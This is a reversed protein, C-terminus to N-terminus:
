KRSGIRGADSRVPAQVPSLTEAAGRDPDFPTLSEVAATEEAFTDLVLQQLRGVSLRLKWERRLRGSNAPHYHYEAVEAPFRAARTLRGAAAILERDAAFYDARLLVLLWRLLRAQPHLCRQLVLREFGDLRAGHRECYLEALTKM